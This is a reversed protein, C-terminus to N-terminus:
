SRDLPLALLGVDAIWSSMHCTPAVYRFLRPFSISPSTAANSHTIDVTKVDREDKHRSPSLLVEKKALLKGLYFAAKQSSCGPSM